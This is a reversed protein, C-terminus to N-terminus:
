ALRHNGCSHRAMSSRLRSHRKASCRSRDRSYANRSKGDGTATAFTRRVSFSSLKSTQSKLSIPSFAKRGLSRLEVTAIEATSVNFSLIEEPHLGSNMFDGAHVFVDGDPLDSILDHRGHTDSTIVLRMSEGMLQVATNVAFRM